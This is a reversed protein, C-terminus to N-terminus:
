NDPLTRQNEDVYTFVVRSAYCPTRTNPQPRVYWTHSFLSYEAVITGDCLVQLADVCIFQGDITVVPQQTGGDFFEARMHSVYNTSKAKAM